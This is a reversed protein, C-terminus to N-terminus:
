EEGEQQRAQELIKNREEACANLAQRTLAHITAMSRPMDGTDMMQLLYALQPNSLKPAPTRGREGGASRKPM